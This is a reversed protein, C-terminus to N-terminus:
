RGPDLNLVKAYLDRVVRQQRAGAAAYHDLGPAANVELVSYDADDRGIDSCALDVGALVLGFSASVDRALRTWRPAVAATVDQSTGGASLNSIDHLRIREGAAPITDRRRGGRALCIDIRRDVLDLISDRGSRTFHEQLEAALEVVTSEGNGVVSLPIRRYASILQGNLIVLRYDPLDVAEEVLAVRVRKADYGELAADLQDHADCRFVGAGKSGDVPKVYVPWGLHEEVFAVADSALRLDTFHKSAMGDRIRAAWWPMLFAEGAPCAVGDSRLFFKAYAKDKALDCAAGSNLGLDNGFTTRVNGSSYTIRTAYGYEPEVAVAVVDGLAGRRYLDLLVRTVYPYHRPSDATPSTVTM